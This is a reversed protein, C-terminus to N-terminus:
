GQCMATISEIAAEPDELGAAKAEAVWDARIPALAQKLEDVMEPTAEAVSGGAAIMADYSAKDAAAYKEVTAQAMANGGLETIAAQDEPSIQDWKDANMILSLIAGSAIGGEVLVANRTLDVLGFSKIVEAPTMVGDAIGASLIEYVESVPKAVPVIDLLEATRVMTGGGTRIKLGKMDAISEVKDDSTFLQAESTSFLSLVHVDDGFEGFRSFNETYYANLTAVKASLDNCVFPLEFARAMPFRDPKYATVFFAVDAQGNAVVELQAPVSGVVKPFTEFTVRGETADEVQAFFDNFVSELLHGSPLWNSYRLVVDEASAAGAAIAM